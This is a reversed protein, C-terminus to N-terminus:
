HLVLIAFIIVGLIPGVYELASLIRHAISQKMAGLPRSHVQLLFPKDATIM